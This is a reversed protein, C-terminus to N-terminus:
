LLGVSFSNENPRLFLTRSTKAREKGYEVDQPLFFYLQTNELSMVAQVNNITAEPTELAWRATALSFGALQRM